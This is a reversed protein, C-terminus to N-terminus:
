LTPIPHTTATLSFCLLNVPDVFTAGLLAQLMAGALVIPAPLVAVPLHIQSALDFNTTPAQAPNLSGGFPSLELHRRSIDDLAKHLSLAGHKLNSRWMPPCVNNEVNPTM